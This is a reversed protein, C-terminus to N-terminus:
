QPMDVIPKNNPNVYGPRYNDWPRIEMEDFLIARPTINTVWLFTRIYNEKSAAVVSSSSRFDPPDIKTNERSLVDVEGTQVNIRKILKSGSGVYAYKQGRSRATELLKAYMQDYPMLKRPNIELKMVGFDIDVNGTPRYHGNSTSYGPAPIRSTMLNRLVGNEVLTLSDVTRAGLLDVPFYGGLMTGEYTPTGSLSKITYDTSMVRRGKMNELTPKIVSKGMRYDYPLRVSLSYNLQMSGIIKGLKLFDQLYNDELLVTCIEIGDQKKANQTSRLEFALRKLKETLEAMSLLEDMSVVTEHHLNISPSDNLGFAEMSVSFNYEVRSTRVQTGDTNYVWRTNTARSLMARSDILFDFEALVKSAEVVYDEMAKRDFKDDPLPLIMNVPETKIWDKVERQEDTLSALYSKSRTTRGIYGQLAEKYAQDYRRWLDIRIAMVNDGIPFGSMSANGSMETGSTTNFLPSAVLSDGLMISTIVSRAINRNDFDGAILKGLRASTGVSWYENVNTGLFFVGPQGEMKLEKYARDTEAKIAQMVPDAVNKQAYGMLSAAFIVIIYSISKKM